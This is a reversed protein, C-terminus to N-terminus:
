EIRNPGKLSASSIRQAFRKPQLVITVPAFPGFPSLPSASRSANALKDLLHLRVAGKRLFKANQMAMSFWPSPKISDGSLM